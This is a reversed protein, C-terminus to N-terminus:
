PRAARTLEGSRTLYKQPVRWGLDVIGYRAVGIRSPRTEWRQKAPVFRWRWSHSRALPHTPTKAAKTHPIGARKRAKRATTSM